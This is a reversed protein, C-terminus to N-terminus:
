PCVMLLLRLMTWTTVSGSSSVVKLPVTLVTAVWPTAINLSKFTFSGGVSPVSALSIWVNVTVSVNFVCATTNFSVETDIFMDCITTVDEPCLATTVYVLTATESATPSLTNIEPAVSAPNFLRHVIVAM